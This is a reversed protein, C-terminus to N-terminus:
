TDGGLVCKEGERGWTGQVPAGKIEHGGLDRLPRDGNEM